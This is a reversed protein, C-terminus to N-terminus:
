AAVPVYQVIPEAWALTVEATQAADLPAEGINFTTVYAYATYTMGSPFAVQWVRKVNNIIDDLVAQHTANGGIYNITFSADRQRLLGPVSSERRENHTSTEIKNRSYGPPTVNTIEGIAILDQQITGGTGGVTVNVPITFTTTTLVNVEHSGNISPTSGTHGAIIAVDGDALGHPAATTIVSPNAVSSSTIAVTAPLTPPRRKVLIGTTSVAESM